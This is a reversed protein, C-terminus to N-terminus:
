IAHTKLGLILGLNLRGPLRLPIAPKLLGVPSYGHFHRYLLGVDDAKM